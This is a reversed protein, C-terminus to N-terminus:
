SGTASILWNPNPSTVDKKFTWIDIVEYIEDKKGVTITGNKDSIYNIQKSTFKVAISAMNDIAVASIIESKEISILNTTMTTEQVKRQNIAAEFGQYIKESLLMKLSSLDGAAFSKIVIEFAYKAGSIFFGATINCSALINLLNQKTPEILSSIIQDEFNKQAATSSAGVVIEKQKAQEMVQKNVAKIQMLKQEIEKREEEDIKGLHKSLKFFIYFALVAFFIIDMPFHKELLTEDQM